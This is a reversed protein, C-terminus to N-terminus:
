GVVCSRVMLIGSKMVVFEGFFIYVLQVLLLLNSAYMKLVYSLWHLAHM